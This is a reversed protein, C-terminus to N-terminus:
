ASRATRMWAIVLGWTAASGWLLSALPSPQGAVLWPTPILWCATALAGPWRARWGPLLFCGYYVWGLPCILLAGMVVLSFQRDYEVTRRCAVCTAMAVAASLGISFTPAVKELNWVVAVFRNPVFLRYALGWVSANVPRGYWSVQSVTEHWESYAASGFVAVGVALLLTLAGVAGALGSWRRRWLLWVLLPALFPKFAVAVGTWWGCRFWRDHRGAAWALTVPTLLVWAIQGTVAQVHTPMWWVFVVLWLPTWRWETEKAIVSLSFVVSALGTLMWLTAGLELPVLAYPVFLLHTQPLNLNSYVLGDDGMSAPTLAYLSASQNLWGATSYWFRGFDDCQLTNCAGRVSALVRVIGTVLLAATVPVRLEGGARTLAARLRTM